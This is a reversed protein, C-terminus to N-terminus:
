LQFAFSREIKSSITQIKKGLCGMKVVASAWNLVLRTDILGTKAKHNKRALAVQRCCFVRM